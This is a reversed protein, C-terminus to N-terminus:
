EPADTLQPDDVAVSDHPRLGKAVRYAPTDCLHCEDDPRGRHEHDHIARLHFLRRLFNGELYRADIAALEGTAEIPERTRKRRRAM